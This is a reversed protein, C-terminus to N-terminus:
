KKMQRYRLVRRISTIIDVGHSSIEMVLTRSSQLGSGDALLWCLRMLQLVSIFRMPAMEISWVLELNRQSIFPQYKLACCLFIEKYVTMQVHFEFLSFRQFLSEAPGASEAAVASQEQM